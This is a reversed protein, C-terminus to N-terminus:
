GAIQDAPGSQAQADQATNQIGGSQAQQGQPTAEARQDACQPQTGQAPQDLAVQGIQRDTSASEDAQIQVQKPQTKASKPVTITLVGNRFRAAIRDAVVDSPLAFARSFAGFSRESRHMTGQDEERVAEREGRVILTHGELRVDINQPDIGPVEATVVYENNTEAIDVPPVFGPWNTGTVTAAPMPMFTEAEQFFRDFERRLDDLMSFMPQLGGTYPQLAGTTRRTLGRM